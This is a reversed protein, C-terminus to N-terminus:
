AVIQSRVAFLTSNYRRSAAGSAEGFVREASEETIFGGIILRLLVTRWGRYKERTPVGHSDFRMVSFEPMYGLQVGCVFEPANGDRKIARLGIFGYAPKSNYWCRLGCEERLKMLLESSHMLQGKRMREDALEWQKDWQYERAIDNNLEKQRELEELNQSSTKAHRKQAYEEVALELEKDTKVSMEAAYTMWPPLNSM